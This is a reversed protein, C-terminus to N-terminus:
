GKREPLATASLFFVERAGAGYLRASCASGTAGTTMIDDVLLVTRGRCPIRKHVHYVAMATERRAAFGLHKQEAADRKRELIDTRLEARVGLKELRACISRALLEAQNYGRVRRKAATLPVPIVLLTEGEEGQFNEITACHAVFYEAANEGLYLALRPTGNKMRNVASAAAGRYVLPSFGKQFKPLTRKCTQCIGEAATHRGCKDCTRGGDDGLAGVCAACLREEPYRFVEAGCVDCTYGRSADYAFISEKIRKWLRM